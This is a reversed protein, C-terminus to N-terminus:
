GGDNRGDWRFRYRRGKRVSLDDALTRVTTGDRSVVSVTVDDTRRLRLAFVVTDLRGDGNPSFHRNFTLSEIVPTSRKLRTTVFFAGVTAVVLAAFVLAAPSLQRPRLTRRSAEDANTM